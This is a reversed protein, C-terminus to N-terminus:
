VQMFTVMLKHLISTVFRHSILIAGIIWGSTSFRLLIHNPNLGMECTRILCKQNLGNIHRLNYQSTEAHKPVTVFYKYDSFLSKEYEAGPGHLM